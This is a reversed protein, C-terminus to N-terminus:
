EAGGEQKKPALEAMWATALDYLQGCLEGVKESNAIRPVVIIAAMEKTTPVFAMASIAAISAFFLLKAMRFLRLSLAKDDDDFSAALLFGSIACAFIAVGVAVLIAIAADHINDLRTIWYMQGSTIM